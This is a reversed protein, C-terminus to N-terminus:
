YDIDIVSNDFWEEEIIVGDAFTRMTALWNAFAPEYCNLESMALTPDATKQSLFVAEPEPDWGLEDDVYRLKYIATQYETM